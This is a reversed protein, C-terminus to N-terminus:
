KQFHVLEGQDIPVAVCDVPTVCALLRRAL